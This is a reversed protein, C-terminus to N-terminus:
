KCPQTHLKGEMSMLFFHGDVENDQNLFDEVYKKNKNKKGNRETDTLEYWRKGTSEEATSAVREWVSEVSLAYHCMVDEQVTTDRDWIVEDTGGSVGWIM